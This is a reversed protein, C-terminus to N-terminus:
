ENRPAGWGRAASRIKGHPPTNALRLLAQKGSEEQPIGGARMRFGRLGRDGKGRPGNRGEQGRSFERRLGGPAGM